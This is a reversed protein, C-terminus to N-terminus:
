HELRILLRVYISELIYRFIYSSELMALLTNYILFVPRKRNMIALSLHKQAKLFRKNEQEGIEIAKMHSEISYPINKKNIKQVYRKTKIQKLGNTSGTNGERIRMTYLYKESNAYKFGAKEGRLLLDYDEAYPINRYGNLEDYVNRRAMWFHPVCSSVRNGLMIFRTTKPYQTCSIKKGNQDISVIQSGVLDIDKNNDLYKKLEEIREPNSIDDGDMRAIFSGKSIELARNLTICIKRNVENRVLIIRSDSLAMRQLIDYTGDSSCDDVIILEFNNYTQKLISDVAEEIYAAVNYTPMLISILDNNDIVNTM